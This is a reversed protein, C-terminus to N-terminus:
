ALRRNLEASREAVLRAADAVAQKHRSAAAVVADHARLERAPEPPADDHEIRFPMGDRARADGRRRLARRLGVGAADRPDRRGRRRARQRDLM